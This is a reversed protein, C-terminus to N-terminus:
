VIHRLNTTRNVIATTIKHTKIPLNVFISRAENVLGAHSCANIVSVHAAESLLEVPMQRYLEVADNGM